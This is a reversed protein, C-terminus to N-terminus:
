RLPRRSVDLRSRRPPADLQKKFELLAEDQEKVLDALARLLVHQIGVFVVLLTVAVGTRTM